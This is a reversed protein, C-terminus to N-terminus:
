PQEKRDADVADAADALAAVVRALTRNFTVIEDATYLGDPGPEIQVDQRFDDGRRDLTDLVFLLDERALSFTIM